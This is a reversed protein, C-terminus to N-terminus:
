DNFYFYVTFDTGSRCGYEDYGLSINVKYQSAPAIGYESLSKKPLTWYYATGPGAFNSPVFCGFPVHQHVGGKQFPVAIGNITIANIGNSVGSISIYKVSKNINAYDTLNSLFSDTWQGYLGITKVLTVKVIKSLNTM